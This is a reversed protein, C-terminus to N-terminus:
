FLSALRAMFQAKDRLPSPLYLRTSVGFRKAATSRLRHPCKQCPRAQWCNSGIVMGATPLVVALRVPGSRVPGSGSGVGRGGGACAPFNM